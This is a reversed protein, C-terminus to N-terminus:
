YIIGSKIPNAHTESSDRDNWEDYKDSVINDLQENMEGEAGPQKCAAFFIAVVLAVLLFRFPFFHMRPNVISRSLFNIWRWRSCECRSRSKGTKVLVLRCGLGIRLKTPVSRM